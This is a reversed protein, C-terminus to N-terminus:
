GGAERAGLGERSPPAVFGARRRAPSQTTVSAIARRSTARPRFHDDPGGTFSAALASSERWSLYWAGASTSVSAGSPWAGDCPNSSLWRADIQRSPRLRRCSSAAVTRKDVEVGAALVVVRGVM